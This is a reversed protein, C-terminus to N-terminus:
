FSRSRSIPNITPTSIYFLCAVTRKDINKIAQKEYLSILVIFFQKRNQIFINISIIKLIFIFIKNSKQNIKKDYRMTQM